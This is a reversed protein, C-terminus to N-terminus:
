SAGTERDHHPRRKQGHNAKELLWLFYMDSLQVDKRKDFYTHLATAAGVAATLGSGIVLPISDLAGIVTLAGGVGISLSIKQALSSEATRLRLDIDSLAPDIIERQVEAAARVPDDETDKLQAKIAARIAVQFKTFHEYEDKRLRIIDRVPLGELVPLYLEMAAEGILSEHRGKGLMSAHLEANVGMPLEMLRANVVDSTLLSAYDDYVVRAMQKKTPKKKQWIALQTDHELMPHRFIFHWHDKAQQTHLVTGDRMLVEIFEAAGDVASNVNFEKAVRKYGNSSLIPKPQFEVIETAGIERLYLLGKVHNTIRKLTVPGPDQLLQSYKQASPGALILKDFYHLVRPFDRDIQWIRSVDSCCDLDDSLDMSRGAVLANDSGAYSTPAEFTEAEAFHHLKKIAKRDNLLGTLRDADGSIEFEDIWKYLWLDETM